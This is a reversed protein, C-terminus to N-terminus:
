AEVGVDCDTTVQDAKSLLLNRVFQFEANRYSGYAYIRPENLNHGDRQIYDKCGQETFCATVFEWIEIYGVKACGDPPTFHEECHAEIEAIEDGDTVEEGDRVWSYKDTYDEDMGGIIRKQQVAFLPQDTARNNQTAILQGIRKAGAELADAAEIIESM